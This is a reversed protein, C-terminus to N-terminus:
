NRMENVFLLGSNDWVFFEKELKRRKMELIFDCILMGWCYFM